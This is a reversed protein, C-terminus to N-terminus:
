MSPGRGIVQEPAQQVHESEFADISSRLDGRWVAGVKSGDHCYLNFRDGKKLTPAVCARKVVPHGEVDYDSYGNKDTHLVYRYDNITDLGQQQQRYARVADLGVVEYCSGDHDIDREKEIVETAREDPLAALAALMADEADRVWANLQADSHGEPNVSCDYGYERAYRASIYNRISAKAEDAVEDTACDKEAM